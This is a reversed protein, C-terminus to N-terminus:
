IFEEISITKYLEFHEYGWGNEAGNSLRVTRFGGNNVEIVQYQEGIIYDYEESQHRIEVTPTLIDGIKIKKAQRYNM